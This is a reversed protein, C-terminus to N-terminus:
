AVVPRRERWAHWLAHFLGLIIFVGFPQTLLPLSGYERIVGAGTLVVLVMCGILTAEMISMTVDQRHAAAEMSALVLGNMALLQIYLVLSQSHEYVLAQLVMSLVSVVCAAILLSVVTQIEAPWLNRTVAALTSVIIILVMAMLGLVLGSEITTVGALLPCLGLIVILYDRQQLLTTSNQKMDNFFKEDSASISIMIHNICDYM